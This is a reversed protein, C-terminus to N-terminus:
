KGNKESSLFKDEIKKAIDSIESINDGEVLLRILNETGSKRLVIRVSDTASFNEVIKKIETDDAINKDDVKINKQIFPCLEFPRTAQSAPIRLGKLSELIKLAALLGDGTQSDRGIILHGSSEGGFQAEGNIIKHAIFKDGVPTRIVHKRIKNLFKELGFNSMVTVAVTSIEYELNQALFGILHDGNVIEGNEDCILVRDGDGDFAIGIDAHNKTVEECLAHPFMVGCNQNINIGNPSDAISIVEANFSEFINAAIESMAGNASDVVIKFKSLDLQPVSKKLFDKYIDKCDVIRIQAINEHTSYPLELGINKEIECEQEKTLKFGNRDFIKIGNDEFPNHSASVMIGLDASVKDMLCPVSPTPMVGVNVVDIGYAAFNSALANCLMSGSIRTDQAIVVLTPKLVYIISPVVLKVFDLDLPYKGAPGRIGDTGFIRTEM